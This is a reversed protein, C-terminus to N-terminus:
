LRGEFAKKLVSQRMAEAQAFADNVTKEVNECVLFRSKIKEVMRNQETISIRPFLIKRIRDQGINRMGDQNGTSLERIQKKAFGSRLYYLVYEKNVNDSMNFRLIKDSMMLNKSVDKAIVCNGILEITNARSFLFDNEKIRKSEIFQEPRCTKSEQENYVGWTVASVKVIGYENERPPKEVCKFSKGSEISLLIDGMCGYERCKEFADKLVSQRYVTLQEKTKKLTEVASDLESFLEEIKNVIRKQESLSPIEVKIKSYQQIWYRKHTSHEFNITQMRYYIFKPLVLEKNATLIKMASSKVKFPFNVYRSATTFDDFIIVPVQNYIGDIEDTYGLIFSSGATLVPTEFSDDYETSEVIYPTPQEYSLLDELSYEKWEKKM